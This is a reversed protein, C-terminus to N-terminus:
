RLESCFGTPFIMLNPVLISRESELLYYFSKRLYMDFKCGNTGFKHGRFSTPCIHKTQRCTSAEAVPAESTAQM